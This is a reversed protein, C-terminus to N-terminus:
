AIRTVFCSIIKCDVTGSTFTGLSVSGFGAYYRTNANSSTVTFVGGCSFYELKTTGSTYSTDSVGGSGILPTRTTNSSSMPLSSSYCYGANWTISSVNLSNAVIAVNVDIRYVGAPLLIPPNSDSSQPSFVYSTVNSSSLDTIRQTLSYYNYGIQNINTLSDTYQITFPANLNINGGTYGIDIDTDSPLITNVYITDTTITTSSLDVILANSSDLTTIGLSDVSNTVTLDEITVTNATLMEVTNYSCDLVNVSLTDMTNNIYITDVTISSVDNINVCNVDVATITTSNFTTITGTDATMSPVNLTTNINVGNEDCTITYNDCMNISQTTISPVNISGISITQYQISGNVTLNGNITISDLFTGGNVISPLVTGNEIEKILDCIAKENSRARLYSGNNYYTQKCISM